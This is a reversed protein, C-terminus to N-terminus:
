TNLVTLPFFDIGERPTLAGCRRVFGHYRRLPDRMIWRSTQRRAWSRRNLDRDGVRISEKLISKVTM